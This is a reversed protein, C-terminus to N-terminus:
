AADEQSLRRVGCRRERAEAGSTRSGERNPYASAIAPATRAPRPSSVPVPFTTTQWDNSSGKLVAPPFLAMSSLSEQLANRLVRSRLSFEGCPVIRGGAGVCARRIASYVSRGPRHVGGDDGFSQYAALGLGANDQTPGACRGVMVCTSADRHRRPPSRRSTFASTRGSRIPSLPFGIKGTAGEGGAGKCGRTGATKGAEGISWKIGRGM